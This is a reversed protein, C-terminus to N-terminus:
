NLSVCVPLDWGSCHITTHCLVASASTNGTAFGQVCIICKYTNNQVNLTYMIFCFNQLAHSNGYNSVDRAIYSSVVFVNVKIWAFVMASNRKYIGISLM